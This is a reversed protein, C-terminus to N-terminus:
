VWHKRKFIFIFICAVSLMIGLLIYYGYEWKLEPMNEFNMGYLGAMFSLPVFITTVITLMQMVKNMRLSIESIYLDQLGAMLDRNTEVTDMLQITHDYVDRIFFITQQDVLKHEIRSFRAALERLPMVSKRIQLMERKLHHIKRKTNDNPQGSIDEELDIIQDQIEDLVVFHNDVILDLLAYGLYDSKSKRVRGKSGEIRERIPQFIDENGEQFSLVFGDGIFYSVQDSEIKHAVNDYLLSKCVIFIGNDYEELKPQQNIDVIDELVLAHIGFLEGVTEILEAEHLGRFDYWQLINPNPLYLEKISHSDIFESKLETDNYELYNILIKEVKKLGTFFVQGPVFGTKRIKKHKPTKNPNTM